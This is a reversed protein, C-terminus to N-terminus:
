EELEGLGDERLHCTDGITEVFPGDQEYVLLHVSGNKLHFRRPADLPIQLVRKVVVHLVGGHTVVAVRQGAHARAIGDVAGWVRQAMQALSEGEPPAYEAIRAMCARYEEPLEAQIESWTRGEFAGYSRERLQRSPVVTLGCQRGITEATAWARGLDSAYLAQLELRKLRTGLRAAQRRGETTLASDAHGQLRHDRNWETEGHRVLYLRTEV